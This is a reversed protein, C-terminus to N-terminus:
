IVGIVDLVYFSRIVESGKLFRVEGRIVGYFILYSECVMLIFM